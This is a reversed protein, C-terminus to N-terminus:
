RQAERDARRSTSPLVIPLTDVPSTSYGDVAPGAPGHVCPIRFISAFFMPGPLRVHLSVLRSTLARAGEIDLFPLERTVYSEMNVLGRVIDLNLHKLRPGVLSVLSELTLFDTRQM